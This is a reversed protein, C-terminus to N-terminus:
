HDTLKSASKRSMIYLQFYVKVDWAAEDLIWHSHKEAAVQNHLYLKEFPGPFSQCQNLVGNLGMWGDIWGDMWGGVWGGVWGDMWGNVWGDVWEGM